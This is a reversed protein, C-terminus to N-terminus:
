PSADFFPTFLFPQHVNNQLVRNENIDCKGSFIKQVRRSQTSIASEPVFLAAFFDLRLLSAGEALGALLEDVFAVELGLVELLDDDFSLVVGAVVVVVVLVAVVVFAVVVGVVVVLVFLALDTGVLALDCLVFSFSGSALIVLADLELGVFFVFSEGESGGEELVREAVFRALVPEGGSLEFCDLVLSLDEGRESVLFFVGALVVEFAIAVGLPLEVFPLLSELPEFLELTEFPVFTEFAEFSKDPEFPLDGNTAFAGGSGLITFSVSSVKCFNAGSPDSIVKLAAGVLIYFHPPLLSLSLPPLLCSFPSPPPLGTL